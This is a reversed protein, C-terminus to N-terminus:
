FGRLVNGAALLVFAALAIWFGSIPVYLAVQPVLQVALALIAVLLAIRFTAKTPASLNM